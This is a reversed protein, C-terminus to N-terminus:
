LKPPEASVKDTLRKNLIVRGLRWGDPIIEEKKIKKNEKENTVWCTGFQSNNEAKQNISNKEAIKRKTEETHHLGTWSINGKKSDSLKKSFNNRWEKDNNWLWKRREIMKEKNITFMKVAENIFKSRHEDNVFGGEGGEKLNMSQSDRVLEQNVMEKEREKLLARDLIFELIEFKFNEKGYKKLSRRLRKGSGM